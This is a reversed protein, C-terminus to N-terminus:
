PNDSIRLDHKSIRFSEEIQWLQHYYEKAQMASLYKKNTIIGHLGDWLASQALKVKDIRIEKKEEVKLYKKYGYNNILSLPDKSRSLKKKLKAVAKERDYKDKEARKPCYTVILRKEESLNIETIKTGPEKDISRYNTRNLIQSEIVKNM